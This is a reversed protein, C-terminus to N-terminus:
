NPDADRSLRYLMLAQDRTNAGMRARANRLHLEVTVQALGLEAAIAKTRLGASLLDLCDRERPTLSFVPRAAGPLRSRLAMLGMRLELEKDRRIAEVEKRSLSSGVNWAECGTPGRKVVLSFGAQFGAESASHIVRAEENSLYAYEDLYASGTAIPGAANLCYRLFPDHRSLDESQYYAEFAQGLTTRVAPPTGGQSASLHLVKDFGQGALWITAAQWLTEPDTETVALDLLEESRM